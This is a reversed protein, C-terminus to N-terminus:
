VFFFLAGRSLWMVSTKLLPVFVLDPCRIQRWMMLSPGLQFLLQALLIGFIHSNTPVSILRHDWEATVHTLICILNVVELLPTEIAWSTFVGNDLRHLVLVATNSHGFYHLMAASSWYLCSISRKHGELQVPVHSQWRAAMRLGAWFEKPFWEIHANSCTASVTFFLLYYEQGLALASVLLSGLPGTLHIQSSRSKHKHKHTHAHTCALSGKASKLVVSSFPLFHPYFLNHSNFKITNLPAM